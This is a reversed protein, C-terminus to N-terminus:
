DLKKYIIFFLVQLQYKLRQNDLELKQLADEANMVDKYLIKLLLFFIKRLQM